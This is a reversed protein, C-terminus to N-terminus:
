RIKYLAFALPIFAYILVLVGIKAVVLASGAVYAAASHLFDGVKSNKYMHWMLYVYPASSAIWAAGVLPPVDAQTMFATLFTLRLSIATTFSAAVATAFWLGAALVIKGDGFHRAAWWFVLLLIIHAAVAVPLLVGELIFSLAGVFGFIKILSPDSQRELGASM